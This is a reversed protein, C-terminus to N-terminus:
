TKKQDYIVKLYSKSWDYDKIQEVIAAIENLSTISRHLNARDVGNLDAAVSLSHGNVLYDVLADTVDESNIKTLMLLMSLREKTQSGRVLYNM